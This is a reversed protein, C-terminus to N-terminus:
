DFLINKKNSNGSEDYTISYLVKIETDNSDVDSGKVLKDKM